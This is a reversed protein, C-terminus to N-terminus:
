NKLFETLMILILKPIHLTENELNSVLCLWFKSYLSFVNPSLFEEPIKKKNLVFIPFAVYKEFQKIDTEYNILLRQMEAM